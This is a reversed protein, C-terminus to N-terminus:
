PRQADHPSNALQPLYDQVLQQVTDAQL